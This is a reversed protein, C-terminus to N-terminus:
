LDKKSINNIQNFGLYIPDSEFQSFNLKYVSDKKFIFFKYFDISYAFLTFLVILFNTFIHKKYTEFLVLFLILIYFYIYYRPYFTHQIFQPLTNFFLVSFILLTLSSFCLVLKKNKQYNKILIVFCMAFILLLGKTESLRLIVLEFFDGNIHHIGYNQIKIPQWMGYINERVYSFSSTNFIALCSLFILSIKKSIQVNEFLYFFVFVPIFLIIQSKFCSGISLFIITIFIKKFKYKFFNELALFLFIIAWPETSAGVQLYIFQPYWAYIILFPIIKIDLNEKLFIPRLVIAWFVVAMLNTLRFSDLLNLDFYFFILNSFFNLFYSGQPDKIGISKPIIENASWYYLGIVILLNALNGYNKKYLFFIIYM